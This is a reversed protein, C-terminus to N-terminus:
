KVQHELLQKIYLIKQVQLIQVLIETKFFSFFPMPPILFVITYSEKLKGYIKLYLELHKAFCVIVTISSSGLGARSQSLLLSLHVM